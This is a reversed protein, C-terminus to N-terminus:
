PEAHLADHPHLRNHGACHSRELQLTCHAIDFTDHMLETIRAILRDGHQADLTDAIVLHASLLRRQPTLGWIHLDHVDEVEPQAALTERVALPDIGSPVGELLVNSSTRLLSWTRPVVWLAILVAVIPDAPTWGTYRVVLAAIIVGVSGLMDSLVELYAGRLNLNDGQGATLVRMSILNVVLGLVAIALMTGTQLEPPQMFRRVAEIMIYVAVGLLLLANFAAALIEFRAYGFTRRADAQRQAMRIALLAILLAATDTVMHAADSLLALSHSLLGGVLETLMFGGTLALAIWLAKENAESDHSHEGHSHEHAM